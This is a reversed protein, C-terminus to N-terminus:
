GDYGKIRRLADNPPIKPKDHYWSWSGSEPFVRWRFSECPYGHGHSHSGLCGLSLSGLEMSAKFGKLDGPISGYIHHVVVLRRPVRV